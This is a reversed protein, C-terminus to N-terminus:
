GGGHLANVTPQNVETVARDVASDVCHRYPARSDHLEPAPGCVRKAAGSIRALLTRAGAEHGLDLDAYAVTEAHTQVGSAAPRVVVESITSSQAIAVGALLCASAAVAFALSKSRSSM